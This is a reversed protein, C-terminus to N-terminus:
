IRQIADCRPVELLRGPESCYKIHNCVTAGGCAQKDEQARGEWSPRNQELTQYAQVQRTMVHMHISSEAHASRILTM